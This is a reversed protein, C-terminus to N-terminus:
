RPSPLFYLQELTDWSLHFNSVGRPQVQYVLQHVAAGPDRRPLHNTSLIIFLILYRTRLRTGHVLASGQSSSFMTGMAVCFVPVKRCTVSHIICVSSPRLSEPFGLYLVSFWLVAEALAGSSSQCSRRVPPMELSGLFTLFLCFHSLGEDALLICQGCPRM